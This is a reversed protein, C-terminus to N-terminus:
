KPVGGLIHPDRHGVRLQLAPTPSPHRHELGPNEGQERAWCRRSLSFCSAMPRQFVGRKGSEGGRKRWGSWKGRKQGKVDTRGWLPSLLFGCFYIYVFMWEAAERCSPSSQQYFWSLSNPQTKIMEVLSLWNLHADGPVQFNGDKPTM